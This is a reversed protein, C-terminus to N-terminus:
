VRVQVDFSIFGNQATTINQISIINMKKGQVDVKWSKDPLVNIFNYCILKMDDMNVVGGVILSNDFQEIHARTPHQVETKDYQGTNPDYVGQIEEIFVIDSGYKDIVRKSMRQQSSLFSM